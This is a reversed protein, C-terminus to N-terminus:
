EDDGISFKLEMSISYVYHINDMALTKYLISINRDRWLTVIRSKRSTSIKGLGIWYLQDDSLSDFWDYILQLNNLYRKLLRFYFRLKGATLTSIEYKLLKYNPLLVTPTLSEM